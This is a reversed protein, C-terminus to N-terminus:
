ADKGARVQAAGAAAAAANLAAFAGARDAVSGKRAAKGAGFQWDFAGATRNWAVVYAAGDVKGAYAVAGNLRVRPLASKALSSERAAKKAAKAADAAPKPAPATAPKAAAARGKGKGKAPAAAPAAAPVPAAAAPTVIGRVIAALSEVTSGLAGVQAALAAQQEALFAVTIRQMKLEQHVKQSPSAAPKKRTSGKPVAMRAPTNTASM